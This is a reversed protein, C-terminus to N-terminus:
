GEVNFNVASSCNDSQRYTLDAWRGCQVFCPTDLPLWDEANAPQQRLGRPRVPHSLCREPAASPFWIQIAVARRATDQRTRELRRQRAAPGKANPVAGPPLPGVCRQESAGQTVMLGLRAPAPLFTASAPIRIKPAARPAYKGKRYMLVPGCTCRITWHNRQARARKHLPVKRALTGM